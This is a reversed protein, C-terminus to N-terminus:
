KAGSKRDEAGAPRRGPRADQRALDRVAVELMQLFARAEGTQPHQRSHIVDLSRSLGDTDALRLPVLQGARIERRVALRPLFALGLGREVMRKAAEITEVELVVGPV